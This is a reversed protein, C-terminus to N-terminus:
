SQSLLWDIYVKKLQTTFFPEPAFLSSGVGCSSSYPERMYVQGKEDLGESREKFTTIHVICMAVKM